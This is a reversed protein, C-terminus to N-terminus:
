TPWDKVTQFVLHSFTTEVGQYGRIRNVVKEGLERLNRSRVKAIIDFEGAIIHVEEVGDLRSIEKAVEEQTVGGKRKFSIFVFALVDHGLAEHNLLITFRRIVGDKVLKELRQAATVRNLGLEDAMTTIRERGKSQLYTVIQTDIEDLQKM